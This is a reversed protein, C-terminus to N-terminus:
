FQLAQGEKMIVDMDAKITPKYLIFDIHISAKNIGGLHTNSGIAIHATGCAKEDFIRLGIPKMGYNIGIGFEAIRDRDGHAKELISQFSAKGKEAEFHVIKGKAFDMRLKQINFDKLEDCVLTGYASNEIPAVYVEGAPIEVECERGTSFCDELTGAEMGIKRNKISFTLDTGNPDTIYILNKRDLNAIIDLGTKRLKDYNVNIANAFTALFEEYEIDMTELCKASLLNVLLLPKGKVTEYVEDWFSCFANGLDTPASKPNEFQTLWVVLDSNELLSRIHKPVKDKVKKPVVEARRLLNEDFVWLYPYAHRKYCELMLNEAFASNHKGCIILINLGKKSCACRTVLTHAAEKLLDELWYQAM